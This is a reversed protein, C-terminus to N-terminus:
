FAYCMIILVLITLYCMLEFIFSLPQAAMLFGKEFMLSNHIFSIFSLHVQHYPQTLPTEFCFSIM